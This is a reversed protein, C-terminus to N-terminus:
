NELILSILMACAGGETTFYMTIFRRLSCFLLIIATRFCEKVKLKNAIALSDRFNSMHIRTNFYIQIIGANNRNNNNTNNM